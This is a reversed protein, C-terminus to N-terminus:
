KSKEMTFVVSVPPDKPDDLSENPVYITIPGASKDDQAYRVSHKCIKDLRYKPM